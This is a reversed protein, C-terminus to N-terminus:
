YTAIGDEYTLWAFSLVGNRDMLAWADGGIPVEHVTPTGEGDRVTFAAVGHMAYFSYYGMVGDGGVVVPESLIEWTGEATIEDSVAFPCGEPHPSTSRACEPLSEELVLDTLEERGVETLQYSLDLSNGTWEGLVPPVSARVPKSTVTEGGEPAMVKYVGPLVALHLETTGFVDEVTRGEPLPIEIGNVVVSHASVPLHLRLAPLTVPDIEWVERRLLGSRHRTLHLTTEETRGGLRLTATVEALDGDVAVAEITFRDVRDVAARLVPETLAVDLTGDTPLAIHERVNEVDADVIAQLFGRAESEPSRGGVLLPPLALVLVLLVAIGGGLL